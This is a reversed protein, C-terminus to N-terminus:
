LAHMCIYGKKRFCVHFSKSSLDSLSCLTCFFFQYCYMVIKTAYNVVVLLLFSVYWGKPDSHTVDHTEKAGLSDPENKNVLHSFLFVYSTILM